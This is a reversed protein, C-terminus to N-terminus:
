ESKKDDDDDFDFAPHKKSKPQPVEPQKNRDTMRFTFVFLIVLSIMLLIFLALSIYKNWNLLTSVANLISLISLVFLSTRLIKHYREEQGKKLNQNEYIKGKGTIAGFLLYVGTALMFADMLQLPM